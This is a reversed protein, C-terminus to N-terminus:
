GPRTIGRRRSIANGAVSMAAFWPLGLALADAALGAALVTMTCHGGAPAREGRLAALARRAAEKPADGSTENETPPPFNVDARDTTWSWAVARLPWGAALAAHRVLRADDPIPPECWAPVSGSDGAENVLPGVTGMNAWHLLMSRRENGHWAATGRVLMVEGAGLIRPADALAVLVIGLETTTGLAVAGAATLAARRARL